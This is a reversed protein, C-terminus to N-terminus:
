IARARYGIRPDWANREDRLYEALLLAEESIMTKFTQSKGRRMPLIEVRSFFFEDFERM